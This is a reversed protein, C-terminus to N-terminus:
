KRDNIRKFAAAAPPEKKARAAFAMVTAAALLAAAAAALHWPRAAQSAATALKYLAAVAAAVLLGDIFSARTDGGVLLAAFGGIARGIRRREAIVVEIAGLTLILCAFLFPWNQFTAYIGSGVAVLWATLFLAVLPALIGRTREALWSLALAEPLRWAVFILWPPYFAIQAPAATAPWVTAAAALTAAALLGARRGLVAGVTALVYGYFLYGATVDAAARGLLQLPWLGPLPPPVTVQFGVGAASLGVVLAARFFTIIVAALLGLYLKRELSPGGARAFIEAPRAGPVVARLFTTIGV